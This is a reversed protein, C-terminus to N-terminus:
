DVSSGAAITVAGLQDDTPEACCFWPETLRPRDPVAEPVGRRAAEGPHAAGCAALVARRMAVFTEPIAEGTAAAQEAIGALEGALRDAEPDEAAWTWSLGAEDYAGLHPQLEPEELLLSGTPLLLRIAYQVPDVNGVLDHEVVFDMLEAVGRPTTWPTFPLFSPRPEIGSARLLETAEAMDTATHGKDLLRLIRDDVSEMATVVFRCGAAAFEPWLERHRLVHEVKVTADWTLHPWSAAIERVIRQSHRWGNLFDPDAFTLHDVGMEVLQEVDALVVDRPVLRVKGGYVAPVPCHTCEHACGHTAEVAAAVREQGDIVARAYRTPEPLLHRAPPAFPSKDLRILGGEEPAELRGADLNDAWTVLAPEFEGAIVRDAVRGVVHDRSVPAYLGYVAIPLEPRAARLREAAAIGLRMATHMPVSIAVADAWEALKDDWAEVALDLCAVEHGARELAAAPSAVAVPQHGLEYTSIMLVRM